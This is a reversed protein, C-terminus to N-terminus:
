CPLDLGLFDAILYSQCIRYRYYLLILEKEFNHKLLDNFSKLIITISSSCLHKTADPVKQVTLYSGYEFVRKSIPDPYLGCPPDPDV